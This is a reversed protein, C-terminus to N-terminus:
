NFRGLNNAQIIHKKILEGIEISQTDRLMIFFDAQFMVPEPNTDAKAKWFADSENTRVLLIEGTQANVITDNDAGVTVFYPAFGSGTLPKGYDGNDNSYMTVLAEVRVNSGNATQTHTLTTFTAKQKIITDNFIRDAVPIIIQETKYPILAM